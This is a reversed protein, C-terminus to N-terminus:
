SATSCAASESPAAKDIGTVDLMARRMAITGVSGTDGSLDYGDVFLYHGIGSEKAM